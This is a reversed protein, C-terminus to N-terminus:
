DVIVMKKVATEGGATLRYLYVGPSLTTADFDVRNEGAEAEGAFVTTVRRGALDYVSLEAHTAEPVSFGFATSGGSPNPANQALAFVYPRAGPNHDLTTEAVVVSMGGVDVAELRYRWKGARVSADTYRYPSTGSILGGNVLEPLPEAPGDTIKCRYLNWGAASEEASWSLVIDREKSIVKFDTVEGDTTDHWMQINVITPSGENVVIGDIDVSPYGEASATISYTGPMVPWYYDGKAPDTFAFWDIESNNCYVEADLPEDTDADTVVGQFGYDLPMLLTQLIGDDNRQSWTIIQGAPPTKSNSVEITDDLDGQEGMSWDNCDGHTYYWDGGNTIWTYYGDADVYINSLELIFDHNPPTVYDPPGMKVYNWIYNVCEAGAHYSHSVVFTNASSLSMDRIACTEPQSFPSPSGGSGDWMYSYDRNVDVWNANYRQNNYVGDPNMMPVVWLETNNVLRTFDSSLPSNYENALRQLFYFLIMYSIKENGHHAGVLRVEPEVEEVGPNDTIKIAKIPRDEVSYGITHIESVGPIVSHIYDLADNAEEVTYYHDFPLDRTGDYLPGDYLVNPLIEDRSDAWLVEYTFGDAELEPLREPEIYVEVGEPTPKRCTDVDYGLDMLRNIDARTTAHVLVVSAIRPAAAAVVAVILMSIAVKKM